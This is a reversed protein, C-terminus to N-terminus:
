PPPPAPLRGPANSEAKATCYSLIACNQSSKKVRRACEVQLLKAGSRFDPWQIEVARLISKGSSKPPPNRYLAAQAEPASRTFLDPFFRHPQKNQRRATESARWSCWDLLWLISMSKQIIM